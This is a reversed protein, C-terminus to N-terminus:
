LAVILTAFHAQIPMFALLGCASSLSPLLFCLSFTQNVAMPIQCYRLDNLLLLSKDNSSACWALLLQGIHCFFTIESCVRTQLNCPATGILM